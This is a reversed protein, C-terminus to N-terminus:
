HITRYSSNRSTVQKNRLTCIEMENREMENRLTCYAKKKCYVRANYWYVALAQTASVYVSPINLGRFFQFYSSYSLTEAHFIHRDVSFTQDKM